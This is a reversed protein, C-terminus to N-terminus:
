LLSISSHIKVSTNTSPQCLLRSDFWGNNTCYRQDRKSNEISKKSTM